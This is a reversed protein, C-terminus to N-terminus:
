DELLGEIDGLRSILDDYGARAEAVAAALLKVDTEVYLAFARTAPANKLNELNSRGHEIKSLQAEVQAIYTTIDSHLAEIGDAMEGLTEENWENGDHITVHELRRRYREIALLRVRLRRLERTVEQVRTAITATHLTLTYDTRSM